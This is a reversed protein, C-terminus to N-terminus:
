DPLFLGATGGILLVIAALISLEGCASSPATRRVGAPGIEFVWALFMAVPFGVVFLTALLTVTWAPMGWAEFIFRLVESAAWAVAFYVAAARFMRRRRFEVIVERISESIRHM